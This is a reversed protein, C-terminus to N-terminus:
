AKVTITHVVVEGIDDDESDIERSDPNTENSELEQGTVSNLQNGLYDLRDILMMNVYGNFITLAFLLVLSIAQITKM